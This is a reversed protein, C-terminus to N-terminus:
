NNTCISIFMNSPCDLVMSIWFTYRPTKNKFLYFAFRTDLKRTFRSMPLITNLQIILLSELIGPVTTLALVIGSCSPRM